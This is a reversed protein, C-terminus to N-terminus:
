LHHAIDFRTDTITAVSVHATYAVEVDITHITLLCVIISVRGEVVTRENIGCQFPLLTVCEFTTKVKTEEFISQCKDEVVIHTVGTVQQM